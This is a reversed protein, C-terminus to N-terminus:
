NENKDKFDPLVTLLRDVVKGITIHGLLLNKNVYNCIDKDLSRAIRLQDVTIGLIECADKETIGIFRDKAPRLKIM